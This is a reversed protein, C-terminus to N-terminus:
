YTFATTVPGEPLPETAGAGAAAILIIAVVAMTMALRHSISVTKANM